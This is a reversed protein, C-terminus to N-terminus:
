SRKAEESCLCVPTVTSGPYDESAMRAAEETTEAEYTDHAIIYEGDEYIEIHVPILIM